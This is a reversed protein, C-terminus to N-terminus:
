AFRAKCALDGVLRVWWQTEADQERDKLITYSFVAERIMNPRARNAVKWFYIHMPVGDEVSDKESREVLNGTEEELEPDRFVTKLREAVNEVGDLTILSVRMWGSETSPAYYLYHDTEGEDGVWHHPILFTLKDGFISVEDLRLEQPIVEVTRKKPGV